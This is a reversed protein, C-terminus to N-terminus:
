DHNINVDRKWGSKIKRSADWSGLQLTNACKVQVQVRRQQVNEGDHHTWGTLFVSAGVEKLRILLPHPPPPTMVMSLM